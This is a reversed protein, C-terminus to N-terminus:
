NGLYIVVLVHTGAEDPALWDPPVQAPDAVVTSTTFSYRTIAPQPTKTASLEPIEARRARLEAGYDISRSAAPVAVPEWALSLTLQLSAGISQLLEVLAVADDKPVYAAFTAGGLSMDSEVPQLGTLMAMQEALAIGTSEDAGGGTTDVPAFVFYLPASASQMEAVMVKKDQTMAEGTASTAYAGATTTTPAASDGFTADSGGNMTAPGAGAALTTAPAATTLTGAVATDEAKPMTAELAAATTTQASEMDPGSRLVGFSIFAAFLAVVAITAPIWPRFTRRWLESRRTRKAAAARVTPRPTSPFLIEGLARDELDSPAEELAEQQLVTCIARQAGLRAACAPCADFHADVARKTATDLTGDLYDVAVDEWDDVHGSIVRCPAGSGDLYTGKAM